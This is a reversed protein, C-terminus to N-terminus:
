VESGQTVGQFILSELILIAAYFSIPESLLDVIQFDSASTNAAITPDNYLFFIKRATSLISSRENPGTSLLARAASAIYAHGTQVMTQLTEDITRAPIRSFRM